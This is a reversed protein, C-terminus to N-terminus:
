CVVTWGSKKYVCLADKETDYVMLGIAPNKIDKLASTKM